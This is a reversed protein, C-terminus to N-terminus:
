KRPKPPTPPPNNLTSLDGIFSSGFSPALNSSSLSNLNADSLFPSLRSTYPHANLSSSTARIVTEQAIAAATEAMQVRTKLSEIEMLVVDMGPTAHQRLAAFGRARTVPNEIQYGPALVAGIAQKLQERAESLHKPHEFSFPIARYPKVDFPIAEGPVRFMHIIPKEAMHRLGMEYFANANLLSMDAVVLEDDLLHNIVQSDIMGPQAIKDSRIVEFEPFHKGFVPAIIEDLLWDAHGRTQSNADGIPGVVFCTRTTKEEPM